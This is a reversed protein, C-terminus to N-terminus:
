MKDRNVFLILERFSKQCKDNVMQLFNLIVTCVIAINM